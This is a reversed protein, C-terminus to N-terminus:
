RSRGSRYIADLTEAVRVVQEIEPDFACSRALRQAWEIIAKGGWADGPETLRTSKTKEYHEAVFHYFSGGVNRFAAAGRTGYFTAGIVCDLGASVNWSCARQAVM